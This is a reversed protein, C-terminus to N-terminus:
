YKYIFSKLANMLIMTVAMCLVMSPLLYTGNYVISGWLPTAFFVCGSIVAPILRLVVAVFVALAMFLNMKLGKSDKIQKYFLSAFGLVGYALPYDLIVQIPHFIYGWFIQIAGALLAVLFGGKPGWRFCMIFIPVMALSISGGNLWAFSLYMGCVFDLVLALATFIAAESIFLITKRGKM